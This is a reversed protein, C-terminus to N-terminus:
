RKQRFSDHCSSCSDNVALIAAKVEAENGAKVIESLKSVQQQLHDQADKFKAPESFVAPLAESKTDKTSPAFDAWPMKSLVDLYGVNRAAVGADYPMRGRAMPALSGYFYKGMLKMAAQRNDVLTEPKAQAFAGAAFMAGLALAIGAVLGRLHM